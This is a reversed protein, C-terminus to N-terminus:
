RTRATTLGNSGNTGNPRTPASTRCIREAPGVAILGVLSLNCDCMWPGWYLLGNAVIVGDHCDPRMLPIRFPQHDPM